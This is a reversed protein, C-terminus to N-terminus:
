SAAFLPILVLLLDAILVLTLSHIRMRREQPLHDDSVHRMLRLKDALFMGCAVVALTSWFAGSRWWIGWGILALAGATVACSNALARRAGRRVALTRNGVASDAARDPVSWWLTRGVLLGWIGLFLPWTWAPFDPRVAAFTGICPLLSFHMGLFVPNAWGRRKLRVPELNYLLEVAIGLVVAIAIVPRGLWVAAVVSLLLAVTMEVAAWRIVRAAGLRRTAGAIGEKGHVQSDADLDLAGNLLNQAVLPILNAALALLVPATLLQAPATV